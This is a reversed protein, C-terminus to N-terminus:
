RPPTRWVLVVVAAVLWAAIATALVSGSDRGGELVYLLLNACAFALLSVIALSRLYTPDPRRM